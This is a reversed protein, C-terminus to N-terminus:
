GLSVAIEELHDYAEQMGGEMGSNVHMDRAEQERARGAASLLTRGDQETLTVTTLTVTTLTVTTLTV